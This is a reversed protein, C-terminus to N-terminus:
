KAQKCNDGHWRAYGNVAVSQQCHQCHKKTRTKGLNAVRRKEKEEDTQVRGRIKDGIKKRTEESVEIGYRSNNTGSSAASLKEKWEKSFPARTRGVIAKIQNEKEHQPQIRGTNAASIRRKAEASHNKGYFGNGEGKVKVSQLLSYEEKLLAYVRSTIKTKYRQQNPNEARMMRFANLMKWHEDGAPYIKILLWHCIFHERATLKTLNAAENTGGLSRPLIHHSETYEDTIRAQARSTINKYWKNYKNM